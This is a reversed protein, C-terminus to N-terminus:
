SRSLTQGVHALPMAPGLFWIHLSEIAWPARDADRPFPHPPSHTPPRCLSVTSAVDTPRESPAIASVDMPGRGQSLIQLHDTPLCRRLISVGNINQHAVADQMRAIATSCTPLRQAM